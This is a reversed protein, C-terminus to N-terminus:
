FELGVAVRTPFLEAAFFRRALFCLTPLFEFTLLFHFTLADLCLALTSLAFARFRLTLADFCLAPLRFLPARALFSLRLNLFLLLEVPLSFRLLFPEVVLPPLFFLTGAVSFALPQLRLLRLLVCHLPLPTELLL